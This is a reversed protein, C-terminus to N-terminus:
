RSFAGSVRRDGNTCQRTLPPHRAALRPQWRVHLGGARGDPTLAVQYCLPTMNSGDCSLSVRAAAVTCCIMVCCAPGLVVAARCSLPKISVSFDQTVESISTRMTHSHPSRPRQLLCYLAGTAPLLVGGGRWDGPRGLRWRPRSAPESPEEV